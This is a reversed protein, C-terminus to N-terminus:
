RPILPAPAWKAIRDNQWIIWSRRKENLPVLVQKAYKRNLYRAWEPLTHMTWADGYAEIKETVIAPERGSRWNPHSTLSSLKCSSLPKSYTTHDTVLDHLRVKIWQYGLRGGSYHHHWVSTGDNIKSGLDEIAELDAATAAIDAEVHRIADAIADTSQEFPLRGSGACVGEFFGWKVPYGHKALLGNPLM